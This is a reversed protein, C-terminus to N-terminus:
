CRRGPSGALHWLYLDDEACHNKRIKLFLTSSKQNTLFILNLSSAYVEVYYHRLLAVVPHVFINQQKESNETVSCHTHTKSFILDTLFNSPYIM